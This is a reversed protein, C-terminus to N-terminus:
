LHYDLALRSQLGKALRLAEKLIRRDLHNLRDPDLYNDPAENRSIQAHQHRLRVSQLFHFASAWADVEVPAIGVRAAWQTLREVTSTCPVGAALAFVRAADIYLTAGNVKLDITHPHADDSSVAFDRVIGLPPRNILANEALQRLFRQNDAAAVTLWGRLEEALSVRGYLPRFDFFITAHLVATPDGDFIWRGFAARWESASLCWRPNSAMIEGRCLPFGCAALDRNIRKAVTLLTERVADPSSQGPDFIIGNDQDTAFTQEHRGESGLSIWCFNSLDLGADALEVDIIRQSLVDTLTSVIQTLHKASVGQKLLNGALDRTARSLDVLAPLRTAERLADSIEPLGLQQLASLDKESVVGAINPGDAVVIHHVGHRAMALAAEFAFAHAPLTIPDHTMVTSIPDAISCGPLAVRVLLDRLTFIGVPTGNPSVILMSGIGERRLSELADRIPTELPCTIPARRVVQDLRRAILPWQSTEVGDTAPLNAGASSLPPTENM